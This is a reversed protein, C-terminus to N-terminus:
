SSRVGATLREVEGCLTALRAVMPSRRRLALPAGALLPLVILLWRPGTIPAGTVGRPAWAALATLTVGVIAMGAAVIM